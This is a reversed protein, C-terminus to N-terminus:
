IVSGAEDSVYKSTIQLRCNADVNRMSRLTSWSRIRASEPAWEGAGRILPDDPEGDAWRRVDWVSAQYRDWESTRQELWKELAAAEDPDVTKARQRVIEAAQDVGTPRPWPRTGVAALQRVYGVLVAHLARELVPPAFPTLSTPEVSAYLKEHYSRFREFHSRDRPKTSSYVMVVLGPRQRWQRGIRGTVQIYQSTSKPQGVLTILSLRDIDVGVEIISSALCVDVARGSTAPRELDEIAAPIQDDTLRSTLEKVHNLFRRTPAGARLQMVGLYDPIDSQLLTLSNALERLSNFFAMLTHWPDRAEADPLLECAQLLASFTRVQATQVSGLAPAHVGIFRRGPLPVGNDDTAYKAFFNDSALLGHPPFLAVERRAYLARVQSELRRITATSAVIKPPVPDAHRRDTCLEQILTEYLGTLSGLPGSILHLEDQIILGPPSSQRAGTPGIGFLSRVDERWAVLAFKDVTGIVLSPRQAYIDEDIVYVPIGDVFPCRRDPCAFQVTGGAAAYGPPDAKLDRDSRSRKQLPGM